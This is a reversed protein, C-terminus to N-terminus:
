SVLEQVRQIPCGAEKFRKGNRRHIVEDVPTRDRRRNRPTVSESVIRWRATPTGSQSIWSVDGAPSGSFETSSQGRSSFRQGREFRGHGYGREFNQERSSSTRSQHWRRNRLGFEQKLQRKVPVMPFANSTSLLKFRLEPDANRSEM